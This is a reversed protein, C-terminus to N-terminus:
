TALGLIENVGDVFRQAMSDITLHRVSRWARTRYEAWRMRDSCFGDIAAGYEGPAADRRVIVSNNDDLYEFEPNHTARDVVVPTLDYCLAQVVGLGVDGPFVFADSRVYWKALEDRDVIVGCLTLGDDGLNQRLTDIRSADGGGVVVLHYEPKRQRLHRVAEALYALRKRKNLRGVYLLVKRDALGSARRLEERRGKLAEFASREAEIDVTNNLVHIKGEALGQEVLYRKVGETYAFYGDSRRLWRLKLRESLRKWLVATEVSRDRGHGWYAISTGFTRWFRVLSYALNHLVDEVIILDYHRSRLPFSQIVATKGSLELSLTRTPVLEFEFQSTDVPEVFIKERRKRSADFVVSFDWSRPRLREVSNYFPVRYHPITSQHAILVHKTMRSLDGFDTM